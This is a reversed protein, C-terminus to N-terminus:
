RSRAEASCAVRLRGVAGRYARKQNRYEQQEIGALFALRFLHKKNMRQVLTENKLLELPSGEITNAEFHAITVRITKEILNQHEVLIFAKLQRPTKSAKM